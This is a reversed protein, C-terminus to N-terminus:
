HAMIGVAILILQRHYRNKIYQCNKMQKEMKYKCNKYIKKM